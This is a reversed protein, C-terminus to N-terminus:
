LPSPMLSRSQRSVLPLVAIHNMFPTVTAEVALTPLMDVVHITCDVLASHSCRFEDPPKWTNQKVSENKCVSCALRDGADGVIWLHLNRGKRGATSAKVFRASV